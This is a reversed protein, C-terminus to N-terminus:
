LKSSIMQNIDSKVFKYHKSRIQIEYVYIGRTMSPKFLNEEIEIKEDENGKNKNGNILRNIDYLSNSHYISTNSSKGTYERTYNTIVVSYITM